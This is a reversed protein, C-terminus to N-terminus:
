RPYGARALAAQYHEPTDCDWFSVLEPDVERLEDASVWRVAAGDLLGRLSRVGADLLASARPGLRTAYVACTTMPVGDVLPVCADADGALELLRRLLSPALLPMDCAVLLVRDAAVAALGTALGALPGLGEIPDAVIRVDAPMPQGPDGVVVVEDAVAQATTVVRALLTDPGFPLAAKHVGM